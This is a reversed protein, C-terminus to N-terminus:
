RTTDDAFKQGRLHEKTPGVFHFDSQALEPSYQPHKLVEFKLARLTDVTHAATHPRANDHLLLVRKSLLGRRKSRKASKLENVLMDTYLRPKVRKRSTCWYLAMSMGFSPWYSKGLLLRHRSYKTPRLRRTSGSCRNDRGRHNMIYVWSEDGTVTQHLFVDGERAHRDLHEQCITQRARKHDDSL